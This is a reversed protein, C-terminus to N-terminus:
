ENSELRNVIDSLSSMQGDAKVEALSRRLEEAFDGRLVLGEDPDGLMEAFSQAMTEHLLEKFEAVTLDAIRPHSM